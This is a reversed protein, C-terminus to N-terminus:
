AIAEPFQQLAGESSDQERLTITETNGYPKISITRRAVSVTGTAYSGFDILITYQKKSQSVLSIM